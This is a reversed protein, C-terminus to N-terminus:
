GDSEDRQSLERQYLWRAEEETLAPHAALLNRVYVDEAAEDGWESATHLDDGDPECMIM